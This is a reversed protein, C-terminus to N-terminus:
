RAHRREEDDYPYPDRFVPDSSFGFSTEAGLRYPESDDDPEEDSNVDTGPRSLTIELAWPGVGLSLLRM